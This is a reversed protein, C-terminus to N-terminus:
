SEEGEEAGTESIDLGEAPEAGLRTAAELMEQLEKQDADSM